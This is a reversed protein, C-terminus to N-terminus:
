YIIIAINNNQQQWTRKHGYTIMEQKQRQGCSKCVWLIHIFLLLLLSM